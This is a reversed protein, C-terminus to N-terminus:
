CDQLMAPARRIAIQLFGTDGPQMNAFHQDKKCTLVQMRQMKTFIMLESPHNAQSSICSTRATRQEPGDEM